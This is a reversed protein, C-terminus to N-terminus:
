ATLRRRLAVAGFVASGAILLWVSSPEPTSSVSDVTIASLASQSVNVAGVNEIVRIDVLYLGSYLTPLIIGQDDLVVTGATSGSWSSNSPFTSNYAFSYLQNADMTRSPSGLTATPKVTGTAFGSCAACTGATSQTSTGIQGLLPSTNSTNNLNVTLSTGNTTNASTGFDFIISTDNANATGYVNNLMTWVDTVDFIGVPVTFTSPGTTPAVWVNNTKTGATPSCTGGVCGDNLLDFTVGGADQTTAATSSDTLTNLPITNSTSKYTYDTGPSPNLTSNSVGNFLYADYNVETWGGNSAINASSLNIQTQITGANLSAAVTGVAITLYLLRQM